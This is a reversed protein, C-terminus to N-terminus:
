FLGLGYNSSNLIKRKINEIFNGKDDVGSLEILNLDYFYNLIEETSHIRQANFVIRSKGIPVSFYLNGGSTLIRSLERTAKKTGWSDLEDGYRGLGM